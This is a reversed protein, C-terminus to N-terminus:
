NASSPSSIFPSVCRRTALVSVVERGLSTNAYVRMFRIGRLVRKPRVTAHYVAGDSGSCIHVQRRTAGNAFHRSKGWLWVIDCLGM